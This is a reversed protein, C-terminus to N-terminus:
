NKDPHVEAYLIMGGNDAYTHPANRKNPTRDILYGRECLTKLHRIVTRRNLGVRDAIKNLSAYCIRKSSSDCYRWVAGYILAPMVGVDNVIDDVVPTFGTTHKLDPLPNAQKM